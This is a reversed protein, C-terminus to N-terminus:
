SNDIVVTNAIQIPNERKLISLMENRVSDPTKKKYAMQSALIYHWSSMEVM